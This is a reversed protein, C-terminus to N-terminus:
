PGTPELSERDTSVLSHHVWGTLGTKNMKVKMWTITRDYDYGTCKAGRYVVGLATAKANPQARVVASSGTIHCWPDGGRVAHVGQPTGAPTPAAAAAGTACLLAAALTATALRATITTPM